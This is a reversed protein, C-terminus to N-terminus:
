FLLKLGTKKKEPFLPFYLRLQSALSSMHEIMSEPVDCSLPQENFDILDSLM